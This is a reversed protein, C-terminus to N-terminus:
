VIELLHLSSHRLCKWEIRGWRVTERGKATDDIAIEFWIINAKIYAPIGLEKVKTQRGLKIDVLVVIGWKFQCTVRAGDPLFIILPM